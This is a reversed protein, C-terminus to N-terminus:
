DPWPLRHQGDNLEMYHTGLVADKPIRISLVSNPERNTESNAKSNNHRANLLYEPIDLLDRWEVVRTESVSSAPRVYIASDDEYVVFQNQIEYEESHQAAGNTEAAFFNMLDSVGSIDKADKPPVKIAITCFSYSGGGLSAEWRPHVKDVYYHIALAAGGIMFIWAISKRGVRAESMFLLWALSFQFLLLGFFWAWLLYKAEPDEPVLLPGTPNYIEWPAFYSRHQQKNVYSDYNLVTDLLGTAIVFFVMILGFCIALRYIINRHRIRKIPLFPSNPVSGTIALKVPLMFVFAPAAVFLIFLFGTLVNQVQIAPIGLNSLYLGNALYGCAYFVATILGIQRIWPELRNMM